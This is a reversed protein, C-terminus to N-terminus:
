PAGKRYKIYRDLYDRGTKTRFKEYVRYREWLDTLPTHLLIISGNDRLCYKKFEHTSHSSVFFTWQCGAYCTFYVRHGKLKSKQPFSLWKFEVKNELTLVEGFIRYKSEEDADENLILKAIHNEHPGLNVVSDFKSVSLRWLISLHFLKFQTYDLGQLEIYEDFAEEPLLRSDYWSRKFKGEIKSLHQECDDCLLRERIGKQIFIKLRKDPSFRIIRHKDDYSHKYLLEPLIHSNRLPKEERCLKCIQRHM